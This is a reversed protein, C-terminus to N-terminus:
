INWREPKCKRNQEVANSQDFVCIYVHEDIKFRLSTGGAEIRQLTADLPRRQTTQSTQRFGRLGLLLLLLLLPPDDAEPPGLDREHDVRASSERSAEPLFM